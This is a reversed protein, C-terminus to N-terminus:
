AQILEAEAYPDPIGLDALIAVELQEMNEAERENLHDFGLLHLVGHLVIHTFHEVLPTNAVEAERRLTADAIALDGLFYQDSHRDAAMASPFSLVNTPYDKGRFQANLSRVADDSCLALCVRCDPGPLVLHQVLRKSIDQLHNAIPEFLRWDGSETVVDFTLRQDPEEDEASGALPTPSTGDSSETM